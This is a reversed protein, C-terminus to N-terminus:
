AVFVRVTGTEDALLGIAKAAVMAQKDGNTGPMKQLIPLHFTIKVADPNKQRADSVARTQLTNAM